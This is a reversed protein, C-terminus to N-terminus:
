PALMRNDLSEAVRQRLAPLLEVEFWPNKSLWINNRPSPHPLPIMNPWYRQWNKVLDTVSSSAKGFHYKQAYQGLVITVELKNLHNLLQERWAPACESRPALDGSKGTGPFCFGMPLIAIQKPDYFVDRTIGMWERLRKGSADDFPIGSDHVKKGPAQGAILIKANSHIQLVPRAGLPLNLECITCARVQNLLTPLSKM